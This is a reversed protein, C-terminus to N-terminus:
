KQSAWKKTYVPIIPAYVNYLLRSGPGKGFGKKVPPNSKQTGRNEAEMKAERRGHKTKISSAAIRFLIQIWRDKLVNQLM